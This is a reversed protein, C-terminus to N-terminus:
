GNNGWDNLANGGIAQVTVSKSSSFSLSQNGPVMYVDDANLTIPTAEIGTLITDDDAAFIYAGQTASDLVFNKGEDGFNVTVDDGMNRLTTGAELDGAWVSLPQNSVLKYYNQGLATQLITSGAPIQATTQTNDTLNTITIDAPTTGHNFAAMAGTGWSETFFYFEQGANNNCDPADTPGSPIPPVQTAGNGNSRNGVAITGTSVIHFTDTNNITTPLWFDDADLMPSTELLVGNNDFVEVIASEQAFVVTTGAIRRIRFDNGYYRKGDGTPPYFFDGSFGCCDHHLLVMMPDSVEVKFGAITLLPISIQQGQTLLGTAISLGTTLDIVDYTTTPQFGVLQLEGDTNPNHGYYTESGAFADLPAGFLALSLLLQFIDKTKPVNM